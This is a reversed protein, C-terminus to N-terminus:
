FLLLCFHQAKAAKGAREINRIHPRAGGRAAVGVILLFCVIIISLLILLAYYCFCSMNKLWFLLPVLLSLSSLVVSVLWGSWRCRYYFLWIINKETHKKPAKNYRTHTVRVAPRHCWLKCLLDGKGKLEREREEDGLSRNEDTLWGNMKYMYYGMYLVPWICINSRETHWIACALLVRDNKACLM